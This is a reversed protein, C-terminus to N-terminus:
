AIFCLIQSIKRNNEKTPSHAWACCALVQELASKSSPLKVLQDPVVPPQQGMIEGFGPM